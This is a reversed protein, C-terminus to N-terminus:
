NDSSEEEDVFIDESDDSTTEAEISEENAEEVTETEDSKAQTGSAYSNSSIGLLVCFLSLTILSQIIKAKKM